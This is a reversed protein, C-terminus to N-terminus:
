AEEHDSRDESHALQDGMRSFAKKIGFHIMLSALIVVGAILSYAAFTVLQKKLTDDITQVSLFTFYFTLFIFIAFISIIISEAKLYSRM